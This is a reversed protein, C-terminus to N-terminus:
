RRRRAARDGIDGQRGPGYALYFPNQVCWAGTGPGATMMCQAYSTFSCNTGGSGFGYYQACWPRYVEAVSPTGDVAALLFIALLATRIATM